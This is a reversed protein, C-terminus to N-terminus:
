MVEIWWGNNERQGVGQSQHSTHGTMRWVTTHTPVCRIFFSGLHEQTGTGRDSPPVRSQQQQQQKQWDPLGAESGRSGAAIPFM